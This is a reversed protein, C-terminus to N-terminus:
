AMLCGEEAVLGDMEASEFGGGGGDGGCCGLGEEFGM